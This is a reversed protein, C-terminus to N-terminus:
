LDDDTSELIKLIEQTAVKYKTQEKTHKCAKSYVSHKIKNDQKDLCQKKHEETFPVIAKIALKNIIYKDNKLRNLFSLSHKFKFRVTNKKLRHSYVKYAVFKGFERIHCSGDFCSKQIILTILDHFLNTIDINPYKRILENEIDLPLKFM